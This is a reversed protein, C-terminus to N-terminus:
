RTERQKMLWLSNTLTELEDSLDSKKEWTKRSRAVWTTMKNQAAEIMPVLKTKEDVNRSRNFQQILEFYTTSRENIVVECKELERRIVALRKEILNIEWKSM